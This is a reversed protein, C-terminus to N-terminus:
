MRVRFPYRGLGFRNEVPLSGAGAKPDTGFQRLLIVCRQFQFYGVPGSFGVKRATPLFPVAALRRARRADHKPHDALFGLRLLRDPQSRLSLSAACTLIM